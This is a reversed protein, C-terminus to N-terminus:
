PGPRRPGRPSAEGTAPRLQRAAAAPAAIATLDRVGVGCARLRSISATAYPASIGSGGPLSATRSSPHASGTPGVPTRRAACAATPSTTLCRSRRSGAPSPTTVGARCAAAPWPAAHTPLPPRSVTAAASEDGSAAITTTTPPSITPPSRPLSTTGGGARRRTLLRCLREQPQLALLAVPQPPLAVRSRPHCSLSSHSPAAAAARLTRTPPRPADSPRTHPALPPLHTRHSTAARGPPQSAPAHCVISGPRAPPTSARAPRPARLHPAPAPMTTPLAGSRSRRSNRAPDSYALCCGRRHSWETITRWSAYRSGPGGTWRPM